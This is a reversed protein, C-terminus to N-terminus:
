IPKAECDACSVFATGANLSTWWCTQCYDGAATHVHYEVDNEDCILAFELLKKMNPLPRTVDGAFTHVTMALATSAPHQVQSRLREAHAHRSSRHNM